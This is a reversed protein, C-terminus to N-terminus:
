SLRRAATKGHALYATLRARDLVQPHVISRTTPMRGRIVDILTSITADFHTEIVVVDVHERSPKLTESRV